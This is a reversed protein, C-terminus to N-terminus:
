DDVGVTPSLVPLLKRIEKFAVLICKGVAVVVAVILHAVPSAGVLGTGADILSLETIVPVRCMMKSNVGIFRSQESVAAPIHNM